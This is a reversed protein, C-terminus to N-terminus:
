SHVLLGCSGGQQRLPRIFWHVPSTSQVPPSSQHVPSSSQFAPSSYQFPKFQQLFNEQYSLKRSLPEESLWVCVIGQKPMRGRRRPSQLDHAYKILKEWLSSESM